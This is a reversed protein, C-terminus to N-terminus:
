LSQCVDVIERSRTVRGQWVRDFETIMKKIADSDAVVNATTLDPFEYIAFHTQSDEASWGRQASIAKFAEKADPLHETDYWHDFASRDSEQVQARVILYATM